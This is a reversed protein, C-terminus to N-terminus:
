AEVSYEDFCYAGGGGGARHNAATQSGGGAGWAEVTINFNFGQPVTLSSFEVDFEFCPGNVDSPALTVNQAFSWTACLLFLLLCTFIKQMLM